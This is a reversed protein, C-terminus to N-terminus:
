KSLGSKEEFWRVAEGLWGTQYDFEKDFGHDGDHLELRVQVGPIHKKLAEIFHESHEAPVAGDQLGHLILLPPYSQVKSIRRMPYCDDPIEKLDGRLFQPYRGQQFAAVMLDERVPPNASSMVERRGEEKARRIKELLDEVLSDPYKPYEVFKKEAAFGPVNFWDDEMDVMPFPAIIGRIDIGWEKLREKMFGSQVACWGGASEGLMVTRRLDVVVRGGEKNERVAAASTGAGAAADVGARGWRVDLVAQLDRVVWEWFAELDDLLEAGNAEPLLRYDPLVVVARHRLAWVFNWPSLWPVHLAAGTVLGGGHFRVLLPLRHQQQQRPPSISSTSSTSVAPLSKPILIHVAIPHSDIVRYTTPLHVFQSLAAETAALVPDDAM